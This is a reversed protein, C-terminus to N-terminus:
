VSECKNNFNAKSRHNIWVENNGIESDFTFNKNRLLERCEEREKNTSSM